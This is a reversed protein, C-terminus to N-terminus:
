RQSVDGSGSIDQRLVPSGIYVVDGSGRISVDLQDSVNVVVSGGGSINIDGTAAALDGGEFDGSGNIRVTLDDTTGSPEIDGSGNVTM